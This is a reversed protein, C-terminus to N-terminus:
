GMFYLFVNGEADKILYVTVDRTKASRGSSFSYHTYRESANKIESAYRHGQYLPIMDSSVDVSEGCASSLLKEAEEMKDSLLTLKIKAYEEDDPSIEGEEATVYDQVKIGLFEEVYQTYEMGDEEREQVLTVSEDDVVSSSEDGGEKGCAILLMLTSLIACKRILKSM